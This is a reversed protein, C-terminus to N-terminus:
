TIHTPNMSSTRKGAQPCSSCVGHGHTSKLTPISDTVIGESDNKPDPEDLRGSELLRIFANAIRFIKVSYQNPTTVLKSRERLVAMQFVYMLSTSLRLLDQVDGPNGVGIQM